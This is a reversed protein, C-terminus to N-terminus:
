NLCRNGRIKPKTKPANQLTFPEDNDRRWRHDRFVLGESNVDGDNPSTSRSLRLALKDLSSTVSSMNINDNDGFTGKNGTASKIQRSNFVIYTTSPEGGEFNVINNIVIGDSGDPMKAYIAKMMDPDYMEGKADHVYPNEVNLYVAKVNGADGGSHWRESFESADNPSDTFMVGYQESSDSVNFENFDTSTGHFVRLPEGRANVVQSKGFWKTFAKAHEPKKFRKSAWKSVPTSSENIKSKDLDARLLRKGIAPSQVGDDDRRWRHDRFVLGEDNTDGETPGEARSLRQVLRDISPMAMRSMSLGDPTKHPAKGKKKRREIAKARGGYREMESTTIGETLWDPAEGYAYPEGRKNHTVPKYGTVEGNENKIPKANKNVTTKKLEDAKKKIPKGNKDVFQVPLKKWNAQKAINFTSNGDFIEYGKDTKMVSVPGRKPMEGIQAAYMFRMANAIGGPRARINQLKNVPLMTAGETKFYLKPDDKAALTSLLKNEDMGETLKMAKAKAAKKAEVKTPERMGHNGTVTFPKALRAFNTLENSDKPKGGSKANVAVLIHRLTDTGDDVEVAAVKDNKAFGVVKLEANGEEGAKPKGPHITMHDAVIDWDKPIHKAVASVLQKKSEPTLTVATYTSWDAKDGYNPPKKNGPSVDSVTYKKLTEASQKARKLKDSDLFPKSEDTTEQPNPQVQKAGVGLAKALDSGIAVGKSESADQMTSFGAEKAAAAARIMETSNTFNNQKAMDDISKGSQKAFETLKSHLETEQPTAKDYGMEDGFAVLPPDNSEDEATKPKGGALVRKADEGYLRQKTGQNVAAVNGSKSTFAKWESAMKIPDRSMRVALKDLTDALSQMAVAPIVGRGNAKLGLATAYGTGRDRQSRQGVRGTTGPKAEISQQRENDDFAEKASQLLKRIEEVADRKAKNQASRSRADNHDKAAQNLVKNIDDGISGRFKLERDFMDRAVEAESKKEGAVEANVDGVGASRLLDERGANSVAGFGRVDKTLSERVAAQIRARDEFLIEEEDDDGFLSKQPGSGKSVKPALSANLAMEQVVSTSLRRKSKQIRGLLKNQAEYIADKAAETDNPDPALAEGIAMAHMTSVRGYTLDGFVKDSLNALKLADVAVRGKLSVHNAKFYAVGEAGTMGTDRMFKAADLATGQGEAINILAGFARAEEATKRNIFRVPLEGKWGSRAALQYRHHGNVVYTKDDSPDHWVYLIGALEDNFEIDSFQQTVGGAGIDEVKYQFRPADISLEDIHVIAPGTRQKFEKPKNAADHRAQLTNEFLERTAASTSLWGSGGGTSKFRDEIRAPGRRFFWMGKYHAVEVQKGRFEVKVPNQKTPKTFTAYSAVSDSSGTQDPKADDGPMEDQYVVDGAANQWGKGGKPGEYKTWGGMKIPQRSLRSALKDLAGGDRSLQTKSSPITDSM